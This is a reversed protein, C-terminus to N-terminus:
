HIKNYHYFDLSKREKDNIKLVYSLKVVEVIRNM